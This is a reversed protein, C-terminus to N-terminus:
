LRLAPNGGRRKDARLAVLINSVSMSRGYVGYVKDIAADSTYGGRVLKSVVDWFLKRRSYAFKNAGREQPTYDKAAKGGNCGFQYEHWLQFLDKPRKCLRPRARQQFRNLSQSNDIGAVSASVREVSATPRVVPQLAIRKLVVSMKNFECLNASHVRHLENMVDIMQRKLAFMQAHLAAVEQRSPNVGSVIVASHGHSTEMDEDVMEIMEILQLQGGDGTAHLGVRGVPNLSPSGGAVTYAEIIREKVKQPMLDFPYSSSPEMAAWLLPLALTKAVEHGLTHKSAVAIQDVLMSTTVATIGDKLKYACPGAPGALSVAACADPYALTPDIYVDVTQKSRRWRGRRNIFDKCVGNRSGYTAAGKRLSHTGLNGKKLKNFTSTKFVDDLHRRVTRHGDVPNGYVFETSAINEMSEIHCALNLLPCVKPDMSGLIIQDPADREESINKSWCMRCTLVSSHHVSASLNDFKLKMMDDIRAILHWQLTLVSGIMYKSSATTQGCRLVTLADLYEEYEIPRRAQSPVGQRRVELRKVTKILKNVDVCRTPNGEGRVSDWPINQRPMFSSIAKKIYELTSSRAHVPMMDTTPIPVGYARVNMWECIDDSTIRLLENQSFTYDDEYEINNKYRMFKTLIAKYATPVM